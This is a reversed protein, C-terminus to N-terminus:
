FNLFEALNRKEFVECKGGITCDYIKKGSQEFQNRAIKYFYESSVLDPTEWKSGKPFYNPNFHNSDVEEDRIEMTNPRNTKKTEFNHDMGIIIVESFGMYYIIQLAAYTVTAAPNLSKSVDIGFSKGFIEKYIYYQDEATGYIKRAQWNIFIPINLSRIENQFQELVLNNISVLYNNCFNMEEYALYIRNLGFSIENQLFDLNTKRLSPGNAVLFCREGLHCNKFSALRKRNSKGSKSFRWSLGFPISLIRRGIANLLRTTSIENLKIRM